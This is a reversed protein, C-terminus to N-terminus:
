HNQWLSQRFASPQTQLPSQQVIQTADFIIAHEGPRIYGLQQRAEDSIVGPDRYYAAIRQLQAHQAQKQQLTQQACEVQQQLTINSWAQALTALLLTICLIGTLLIITHTTLSSHRAHQHGVTEQMGIASTVIIHSGSSSLPLRHRNLNKQM